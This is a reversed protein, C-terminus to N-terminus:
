RPRPRQGRHTFNHTGVPRCICFRKQEALIVALVPRTRLEMLPTPQIEVPVAAPKHKVDM